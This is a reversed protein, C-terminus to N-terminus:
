LPSSRRMASSHRLTTHALTLANPTHNWPRGERLQKATATYARVESPLLAVELWAQRPPWCTVWQELTPPSRGFIERFVGVCAPGTATGHRDLYDVLRRIFQRGRVSGVLAMARRRSPERSVDRRRLALAVTELGDELMDVDSRSLRGDGTLLREALMGGFAISARIEGVALEHRMLGALAARRDQRTRLPASPAPVDADFHIRTAGGARGAVCEDVVAGFYMGCLAHGAEHYATRSM